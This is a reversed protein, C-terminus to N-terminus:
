PEPSEGAPAGNRRLSDAIENKQRRLAALQEALLGFCFFYLSSLLLLQSSGYIGGHAALQYVGMLVGMVLFLGSVPLFFKQPSFMVLLRLMINVFRMFDPLPRINSTGTERKQISDMPVYKVFHRGQIMAMTITTPYSYRAPFLHVYELLHVRKIARFGSTLDKIPHGSIWRAIANLMLNGFNRFKSTNSRQTRAAVVMDYEGIHALLDPIAEPPHQGDGDIMVVVDGTANLAGTSVSAGNGLNYPHRFVRAGAALAEQATADSSGDDVVIVEYAPDVALIRRVVHGIAEGENFAPVIISVTFKSM